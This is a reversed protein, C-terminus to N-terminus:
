EDPRLRQAADLVADVIKVYSGCRCLNGALFDRIEDVSPAPHEELLARASLIFGPTCYSCQFATHDAFAQQIPHLTADEALGEITVLTKGVALAALMLCSSMPQGDVLVTCAGCMGIGCGERVGFLKLERRLVDLLTEDLAVSVSHRAGNVDLSVAISSV